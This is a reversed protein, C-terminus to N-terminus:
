EYNEETLSFDDSLRVIYGIYDASIVKITFYEGNVCKDLILFITNKPIKWDWNWDWSYYTNKLSYAIYHDFYLDSYIKGVQIQDFNVLM